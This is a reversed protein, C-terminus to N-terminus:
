VTDQKVTRIRWGDHWMKELAVGFAKGEKDDFIKCEEPSSHSCLTIKDPEVKATYEKGDPSTLEITETM